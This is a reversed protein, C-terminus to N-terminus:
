GVPRRVGRDAQHPPASAPVPRPNAEIYRAFLRVLLASRSSVDLKRYLRELHTHVTHRSIGLTSAITVEKLDAVLCKAIELERESLEFAEALERWEADNFLLHANVAQGAHQRLSRNPSSANM